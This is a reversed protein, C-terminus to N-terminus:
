HPICVAGFAFRCKRRFRKSMELKEPTWAIEPQWMVGINCLQQRFWADCLACEGVQSFTCHPTVKQLQMEMKM